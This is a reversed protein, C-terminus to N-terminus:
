NSLSNPFFNYMFTMQFYIQFIWEIIFSHEQDKDEIKKKELSYYHLSPIERWSVWIIFMKKFLFNIVLVFLNWFTLLLLCRTISLSVSYLTSFTLCKSIKKLNWRWLIVKFGYSGSVKRKMIMFRFCQISLPSMSMRSGVSIWNRGTCQVFVTTMTIASSEKM